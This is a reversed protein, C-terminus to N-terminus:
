QPRGAFAPGNPKIRVGPRLRTWPLAATDAPMAGPAACILITEAIPEFDARFHVSSKNVLIAQETPEIGVFRFMAQDALQAKRSGVVIRVGGIRLCASPGLNMQSGGFYPGPALFRGDSLQEVVFTEILPADGPIGSKGGLALTVSQGVGAAHAAQAAEPDVIVGIAAKDAGNRLLARLMGTTDSDGGAGPNDQTDAIVIPKRASAALAMAHTVGEDPSYIRGDFADEQGEIMGVVADAARDADAQTVGYAVVAAGCDPFDAAPFGPAFSLTPVAKSELKALDAYITKCPEDNTCQWSIPILFPLQRFAKAFRRPTDLLLALHRAAARGTDAMDVHPYTRYAVLADAHAVMAPTINAHLDLSVVLPVDPGIVKRVRALLEGEGDDLHETVMAGHLDLYVGDLPGANAIGDIIVAAIREYADERVHASPSAACWITPVLDWGSQEASDIFGALGVNIGRIRTIVDAGTEMPPWGGGHVFGDYAAKTPAFTNTEHLFGAIAIRHSSM